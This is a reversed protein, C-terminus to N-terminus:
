RSRTSRSRKTAAHRCPCSTPYRQGYPKEMTVTLQQLFDLDCRGFMETRASTSSIRLPTTAPWGAHCPSTASSRSSTPTALAARGAHHRDGPTTPGSPGTPRTAASADAGGAPRLRDAEPRAGPLRRLAAGRPGAPPDARPGTAPGPRAARPVVAPLCPGPRRLAPSPAPSPATKWLRVLSPHLLGYRQHLSDLQELMEEPLYKRRREAFIEQARSSSSRTSSGRSPRRRGCGSRPRIRRRPTKLKQSTQNYVMTGVYKENQLRDLVMGATWRRGGPSLIGDANLREAIRYESYGLEVFEHFIRQMVAVQPRIAWSWRSGSTRSARASARNWSTCRSANRTWCCASCAM